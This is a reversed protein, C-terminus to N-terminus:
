SIGLRQRLLAAADEVRGSKRLQDRLSKEAQQQIDAKGQRAGPKLVKGAIKVVKKKAADAKSASDRWRKADRAMLLVRHDDIADIEQASYGRAELESRLASREADAKQEDGMEPWAAKLADFERALREAKDADKQKSLKEQGEQYQKALNQKANALAQQAQAFETRKATWEAPDDQRLQDWQIQQYRALVQQELAQLVAASDRVSSELDQSLTQAREEAQQRLAKAEERMAKAEEVAVYADKLQGLTPAAKKGGVSAPIPLAYLDAMSIGLHEALAAADAVEIASEAESEASEAPEDAAEQPAADEPAGEPAERPEDAAQAAEQPAEPAEQPPTEPAPELAAAIRDEISLQQPKNPAAAPAATEPM